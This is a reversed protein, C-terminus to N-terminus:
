QQCRGRAAVRVGVSEAWCVNIYNQGDCGCIPSEVGECDASAPRRACLGVTGCGQGACYQRGFACQSNEACATGGDPSPPVCCTPCAPDVCQGTTPCCRLGEACQVDSGCGVPVAAADGLRGGVGCAGAAAVRVGARMIACSDRYTVGDCGCTPDGAGTCTAGNRPACRGLGLCSPAVCYEAATCDRNSACATPDLDRPPLPCESAEHGEAFCLGTRFCCAQGAACVRGGCVVRGSSTGGGDVAAAGTGSTSAVVSSCAGPMYSFAVMLILPKANMRHPVRLADARGAADLRDECGTDILCGM